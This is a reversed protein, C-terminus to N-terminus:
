PLGDRGCHAGKGYCYVEPPLCCRLALNLIKIPERASEPDAQLVTEIAVSLITFTRGLGPAVPPKLLATPMRRCRHCCQVVWARYRRWGLWVLCRYALPVIRLRTEWLLHRVASLCRAPAWAEVTCYSGPRAADLPIFGADKVHVVALTCRM